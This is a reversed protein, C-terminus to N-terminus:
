VGSFASFGGDVAVVTGTVYGAAKEDVLWLVAGVLDEPAGLRDQPIHNLITKANTRFRLHNIVFEPM